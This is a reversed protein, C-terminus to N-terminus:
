LWTRSPTVGSILAAEVSRMPKTVAPTTAAASRVFRAAHRVAHDNPARTLGPQASEGQPESTFLQRAAGSRQILTRRTPLSPFTAGLGM